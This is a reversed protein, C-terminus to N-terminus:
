EEGIPLTDDIDRHSIDFSSSMESDDITSTVVTVDTAEIPVSRELVPPALDDDIMVIEQLPESRELISPPLMGM